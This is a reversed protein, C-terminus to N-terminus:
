LSLDNTIGEQCILHFKKVPVFACKYLPGNALYFVMTIDTVDILVMTYYVTWHVSSKSNHIKFMLSKSFIADTIGVECLYKSSTTYSTIASLKFSMSASHRMYADNFQTMMLESLPKDGTRRWAM